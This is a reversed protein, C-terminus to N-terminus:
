NLAMARGSQPTTYRQEPAPAWWWALNYCPRPAFFSVNRFREHYGGVYREAVLFNYPQEKHIISQIEQYMAKRKEYDFEGRIMDILQDVRDNRFGVYNSGGAAISGSHWIQYMDGETVGMAWGGIYADFKHKDLQDLFVAWELTSPNAKVGIKGLADCFLLAMQKRATNGSNLLISFEMPVKKGNVVQERWGDGDTDKWGAEDLLKRAKDLNFEYPTISSDYEPRLRYIPSNVPFANGFYVNDIMGQKNIAHAFAVRVRGDALFPKDTSAANYGVYNYAPFDYEAPKIANQAFREKEYKYQVQDLRPVFDIEGAKLSSLAANRDNITMWIIRDPWSQGYRHASNWYNPNRELVVRDQARHEIFRYPGSGVVYAPDFNKSIDEFVDAMERIAPNRVSDGVANLETFYIRDSIGQPDWIHKPLAYLGGAWQEGLYYPSAMVVRLRYPDGDVLMASDVKMYYGRIPAAKLINSNKITKLYFIFDAGTVPKGDSFTVGKRIAFEYSMRDESVKPLSDAIWPITELTQVDTITLTEYIYSFIESASNDNTTILNLAEPDSLGHVVVWDGRVPDGTESVTTVTTTSNGNQDPDNGCAAFGLVLSMLFLLGAFPRLPTSPIRKMANNM